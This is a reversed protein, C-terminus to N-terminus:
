TIHIWLLLHYPDVAAPATVSPLPGYVPVGLVSPTTRSQTGKTGDKKDANQLHQIQAEQLQMLKVQAQLQVKKTMRMAKHLHETIEQDDPESDEKLFETWPDMEDMDMQVTQDEAVGSQEMIISRLKAELEAANAEAQEIELDVKNVDAEYQAKQKCYHAKLQGEFSKWKKHCMTKDAQLKNLRASAKRSANLAKQLQQTLSGATSNAMNMKKQDKDNETDSLVVQNYSLQLADKKPKGNDHEPKNQKWQSSPWYGSGAGYSQWSGHWPKDKGM